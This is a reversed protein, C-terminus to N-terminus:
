NSQTPTPRVHELARHTRKRGGDEDRERLRTQAARRSREIEVIHLSVVDNSMVILCGMHNPTM